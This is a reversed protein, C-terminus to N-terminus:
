RVRKRDKVITGQKDNKKNKNTLYVKLKKENKERELARKM